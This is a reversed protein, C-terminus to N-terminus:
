SEAAVENLVDRLLAVGERPDRSLHLRWGGNRALRAAAAVGTQLDRDFGEELDTTLADEIVAPSVRELSVQDAGPSLLCVGVREAVPLISSGDLRPAVAIKLKGNAQLTARTDRLEPFHTVANPSLHLRGPMAWIRVTPQLQVYAVDEGLVRFHDRWAAYALTSKGSSSAGCLLVVAGERSVTAAHIPHRDAGTVLVLAMAELIGYQFHATDAVLATTVFAYAEYRNVEAVGFSGPTSVLMRDPDPWRYRLSAHGDTGENGDQVFLRVRASVAAILEPRDAICRWVGFSEEATRIVAESNSEFRVPIGLVPFEAAFDLPANRYLDNAPPTFDVGNM